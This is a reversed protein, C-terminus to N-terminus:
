LVTYFEAVFKTKCYAFPVQPSIDHSFVCASVSTWILMLKYLLTDFAFKTTTYLSSRGVRPVHLSNARSVILEVIQSYGFVTGLVMHVVAITLIVFLAISKTCKTSM